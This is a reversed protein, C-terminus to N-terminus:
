QAISALYSAIDAVSAYVMRQPNQFLQELDVRYVDWAGAKIEGELQGAAWGSYGLFLRASAPDQELMQDVDHWKGGLFLRPAVRFSEPQPDDTLQLIQLEDQQVPGGICIERSLDRDRFGDFMESLPMHSPRNLVLGYAGGEKAYICVLVVTAIFNPDQLVDRALLVTGTGLCDLGDRAAPGSLSEPSTTEM